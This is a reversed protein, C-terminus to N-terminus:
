GNEAKRTRQTKKASIKQGTREYPRETTGHDNGKDINAMAKPKGLNRKPELSFLGLVCTETPTQKNKESTTKRIQFGARPNERCNTDPYTGLGEEKVSCFPKKFKNLRSLSYANKSLARTGV